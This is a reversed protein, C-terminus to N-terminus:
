RPPAANFQAPQVLASYADAASATMQGFSQAGGMGPQAQRAAGGGVFRGVAQYALAKGGFKAAGM